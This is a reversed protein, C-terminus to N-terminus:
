PNIVTYFVKGTTTPYSASFAVTFGTGSTIQTVYAAVGPLGPDIINVQVSSGNQIGTYPISLTLANQPIVVTGAYNGPGAGNLGNATNTGGTPTITSGPGVNITVGSQLTGSTLQSASITTNSPIVTSWTPTNSGNLTMVAGPVTPAYPTAVSLSNGVWINNPPLPPLSSAGGAVWQMIGNADSALTSLPGPPPTNPFALSYSSSLTTPTYLTVARYPTARADIVLADAGFMRTLTQAHVVSAAGISFAISLVCLFYKTKELM